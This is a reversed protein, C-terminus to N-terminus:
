IEEVKGLPPVSAPSLLQRIKGYPESIPEDSLKFVGYHVPVFRKAKLDKYAQIAEYPNMHNHKMIYPPLYAGVPLFACDIKFTQGIDRFHFSYATDGAYFLSKGNGEILYSGWLARNTDLLGRKSWHKAPLFLVKVGSKEVKDFWKLEIIKKGSIKKLYRKAGKPVVIKEADLSKISPIDLHDYHSHTILVFDIKGLEYPKYPCPTYRKYFPIDGFVPDTLVRVGSLQILVTGHGLLVFFDKNISLKEVERVWPLSFKERKKFMLPLTSIKWKIINFFYLGQSGDLSSLYRGFKKTLKYEKKDFM